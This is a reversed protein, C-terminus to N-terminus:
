PSQEFTNLHVQAIFNKKTQNYLKAFAEDADTVDGDSAVKMCRLRINESSLIALADELICDDNFSFAKDVFGGLFLIKYSFIVIQDFGKLHSL